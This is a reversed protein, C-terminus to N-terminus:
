MSAFFLLFERIGVQGDQNIDMTEFVTDCLEIDMLGTRAIGDKFEFIDVHGSEDLDYLGFLEEFDDKDEQTLKGLVTRKVETQGPLSIKIIKDYQSDKGSPFLCSIMEKFSVKGDQNADLHAIYDSLFKQADKSMHNQLNKSLENRGIYGSNDLDLEQFMDHYHKVDSAVITVSTFDNAKCPKIRFTTEKKRPGGVM